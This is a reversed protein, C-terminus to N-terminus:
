ARQPLPNTWHGVALSFNFSVEGSALGVTTHSTGMRPPHTTPQYPFQFGISTQGLVESPLLYPAPMMGEGDKNRDLGKLGM